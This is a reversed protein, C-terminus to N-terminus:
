PTSKKICVIHTDNTNTLSKQHTYWVYLEAPNIQNPNPPCDGELVFYFCPMTM